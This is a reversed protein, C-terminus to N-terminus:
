TDRCSWSRKNNEKLHKVFADKPGERCKSLAVSRSPFPGLYAAFIPRASSQSFATCSRDARLVRAGEVSRVISDLASSDGAASSLVLVYGGDCPLDALEPGSTSAEVSDWSFGTAGGLAFGAWTLALLLASVNLVAVLARMGSSAPGADGNPLGHGSSARARAGM